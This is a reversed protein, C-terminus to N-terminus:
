SLTESMEWHGHRRGRAQWVGEAHSTHARYNVEGTRPRDLTPTQTTTSARSSPVGLHDLSLSSSRPGIGLGMYRSCLM